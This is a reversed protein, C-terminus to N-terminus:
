DDLYPCSHSNWSRNGLFEEELVLDWNCDNAIQTMGKTIIALLCCLYLLKEM